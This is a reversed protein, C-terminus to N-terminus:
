PISGWMLHDRFPREKLRQESSPLEKWAYKTGGEFFYGCQNEKKKLNM